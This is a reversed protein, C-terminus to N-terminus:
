LSTYMHTYLMNVESVQCEGENLCPNPSCEDIDFPVHVQCYRGTFDMDCDCHYGAVEDQQSMYYLKLIRLDSNQQTMMPPKSKTSVVCSGQECLNDVCDDRNVNCNTGTYGQDCNCSYGNM